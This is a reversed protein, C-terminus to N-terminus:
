HCAPTVHLDRGVMIIDTNLLGPNVGVIVGTRLQGKLGVQGRGSIKIATHDMILYQTHSLTFM